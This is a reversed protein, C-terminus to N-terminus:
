IKWDPNNELAKRVEDAWVEKAKALLEDDSMEGPMYAALIERERVYASEALMAWSQYAVARDFPQLFPAIEPIATSGEVMPV